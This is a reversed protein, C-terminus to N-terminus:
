EKHATDIQKADAWLWELSYFKRTEANFIHVIVDGFDLLLWNGSQYGEIRIFEDKLKEILEDAMAKLHPTSTGTCIIFSDALITLGEVNLAVVDIAKKDELLSIVKQTKEKSNM